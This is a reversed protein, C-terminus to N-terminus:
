EAAYQNMSQRFCIARESFKFANANGSDAENKGYGRLVEHIIHRFCFVVYCV